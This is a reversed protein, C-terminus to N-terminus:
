VGGTVLATTSATSITGRVAGAQSIGGNVSYLISFWVTPEGNAVNMELSLIAPCAGSMTIAEITWGGDYGAPVSVPNGAASALTAGTLLVVVAASFAERRM